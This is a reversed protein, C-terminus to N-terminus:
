LVHCWVVKQAEGSKEKWSFLWNKAHQFVQRAWESRMELFKWVGTNFETSVTMIGIKDRMFRQIERDTEKQSEKNLVSTGNWFGKNQTKVGCPLRPLSALAPQCYDTTILLHVTSSNYTTHEPRLSRETLPSTRCLARTDRRVCHTHTHTHTHQNDVRQVHQVVPSKLGLWFIGHIYWPIGHYLMTCYPYVM